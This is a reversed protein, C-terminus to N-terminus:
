KGEIKDILLKEIYEYEEENVDLYCVEDNVDEFVVVFSLPETLTTNESPLRVEKECGVISDLLVTQKKNNKELVIAKKNVLEM